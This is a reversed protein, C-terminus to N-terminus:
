QKNKRRYYYDSQHFRNRKKRRVMEASEYCDYFPSISAQNCKKANACRNAKPCVNAQNQRIIARETPNM